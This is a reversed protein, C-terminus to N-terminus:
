PVHLYLIHSFISFAGLGPNSHETMRTPTLWTWAVTRGCRQPIGMRTRGVRPAPTPAPAAPPAPPPTTSPSITTRARWTCRRSSGARMEDSSLTRVVAQAPAASLLFPSPRVFSGAAAGQFFELQPETADDLYYRMIVNDYIFRGHREKGGVTWLFTMLAACSASNACTTSVNYSYVATENTTFLQSTIGDPSHSTGGFTKLGALGAPGAAGAAGISGVAALLPVLPSPRPRRAPPTM